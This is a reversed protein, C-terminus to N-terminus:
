DILQDGTTFHRSLGAARLLPLEDAAM